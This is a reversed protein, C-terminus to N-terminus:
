GFYGGIVIDVENVTPFYRREDTYFAAVAAEQSKVVHVGIKGMEYEFASINIKNAILDSVIKEKNTM